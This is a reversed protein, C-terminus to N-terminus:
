STWPEVEMQTKQRAVSELLAVDFRAQEFTFRPRRDHITSHIFDTWMARTGTIDRLGPLILRSRRGRVLVFVGNSEFAITGATGYLKSVHIGNLRSKTEWSYALLGIAGGEYRLRTLSTLPGGCEDSSISEVAPGLNALLDIWHVGGEFLPGGGSLAPDSRWGAPRQWKMANVWALRLDGVARAAMLDRLVMALPKYFYNEAIFVNRNVIAAAASVEDFEAPSLFGPKEVIVNKSARLSRLTLELHTSPPTTIVAVDIRPDDLAGDYSHFWGSGGYSESFSRAKEGSRSAYFRAAGPAVSRLTRTHALAAAGCGLFVLRPDAM